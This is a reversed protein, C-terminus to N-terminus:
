CQLAGGSTSEAYVHFDKGGSGDSTSPVFWQTHWVLDIDPDEATTPALSLDNLQMVVKYCPDAVSCPTTTVKSISSSLIDLQPMNASSIGSVEYKGDGAPDSVGNFPTLGSISMPSQAAYLGTGGNQHVYMAHGALTGIINNSDAYSIHAEGRAGTRLQLYDGLARSAWACQGGIVTMVGGRHVRHSSARIPATFTPGASDPANLSQWM